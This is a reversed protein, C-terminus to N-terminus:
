RLAYRGGGGNNCNVATGGFWKTTDVGYKGRRAFIKGWCDYYDATCWANTEYLAHVYANVTILQGNEYFTGLYVNSLSAMVCGDVPRFHDECFYLHSLEHQILNEDAWCHTTPKILIADWKESGIGQCDFEQDSVAILIDIKIGNVYMGSSFSTDSIADLLLTEAFIASDPSEWEYFVAPTFSIDFEEAFFSSARMIQITAYAQWNLSTGFYDWNRSRYEEDCAVLTYVIHSTIPFEKISFLPSCIQVIAEDLEPFKPTYFFDSNNERVAPISGHQDDFTLQNSEAPSFPKVYFEQSAAFALVILVLVLSRLNKM